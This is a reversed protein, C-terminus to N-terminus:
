YNLASWRHLDLLVFYTAPHGQEAADRADTQKVPHLKARWFPNWLNPPEGYEEDIESALLVRPKHFYVLGGALAAMREGAALDGPAKWTSFRVPGPLRARFDFDWPMRLDEASTPRQEAVPRTILTLTRPMNWLDVDREVRALKFRMHGRYFGRRPGACRPGDCDGLERGHGTRRMLDGHFIHHSHQSADGNLDHDHPDAWIGNRGPQIVTTQSFTEGSGLRYTSSVRGHDESALGDGDGMDEKFDHRARHALKALQTGARPKAAGHHFPFGVNISPNHANALGPDEGTGGRNTTYRTTGHNVLVTTVTAGHSRAALQAGRELRVLNTDKDNASPSEGGQEYGRRTIFSPYRTASLIEDYDRHLRLELGNDLADKYYSLSVQGAGAEARLEPATMAVMLQPLSQQTPPRVYMDEGQREVRMETNARLLFQENGGKSLRADEAEGTMMMRLQADVMLQRSRLYQVKKFHDRSGEVMRLCSNSNDKRHWEDHFWGAGRRHHDSEDLCTKGDMCDKDVRCVRQGNVPSCQRAGFGGAPDFESLWYIDRIRRANAAGECADRVGAGCRRQLKEAIRDFNRGTAGLMDEYFTVYSQHAHVSLISVHHAVLARNSWAYFNFARAEAVALSYATSDAMAQLQIKRRTRAGIAFTLFTTLVVVLMLLVALVLSQGRASRAQRPSM